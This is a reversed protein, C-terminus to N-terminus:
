AAPLNDHLRDAAARGAVKLMEDSAPTAPDSTALGLGYLLAEALRPADTATWNGSGLLEALVTTVENANLSNSASTGALFDLVSPVRAARALKDLTRISTISEYDDRVARSINTPTVGSQKAWEQASWDKQQMVRRMWAAIIRQEPLMALPYNHPQMDADQVYATAISCM